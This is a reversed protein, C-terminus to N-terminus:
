VEETFSALFGPSQEIATLQSDISVEHEGFEFSFGSGGQGIMTFRVKKGDAKTHVFRVLVTALGGGAGFTLKRQSGSTDLKATSLLALRSLEWSLIGTKVSVMEKTIFSKVTTGYQNKVEYRTPKYSITFGGSCHGVNHADTEIVNDAPLTSGTYEYMYVEGAGMLIEAM